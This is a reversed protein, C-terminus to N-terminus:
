ALLDPHLLVNPSKTNYAYVFCVKWNM